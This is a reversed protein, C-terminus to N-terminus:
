LKNILLHGFGDFPHAGLKLLRMQGKVSMLVPAFKGHVEILDRILKCLLMLALLLDLLLGGVLSTRGAVEDQMSRWFSYRADGHCVM